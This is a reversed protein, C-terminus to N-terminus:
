GQGPLRDRVPWVHFNKARKVGVGLAGKGLYLAWAWDPEYCSTTSSWYVDRVELFPHDAPLAPSHSACDVLSELENINPLRWHPENEGLKENLAAVLSFAEGWSVEAGGNLSAQRLWELGTLRDIVGDGEVVLRQAPWPVGFGDQGDQVPDPEPLERGAQDYSFRQGTAALISSAGRVPWLLYYQDKRGYFMRAGDLHVYWAYAPNIAATTSTWYWGLFVDTFPHGAPLAPRRTQYSLLSRLERRNPLRWDSFGSEARANMARIFELAEGWTLPFGAPNAEATWILGTLQDAVLAGTRQFRPAPWPMGRRFAGDQGSGPCAIERGAEDYCGEQGTWPLPCVPAITKDSGPSM